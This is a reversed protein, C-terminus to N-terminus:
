LPNVWARDDLLYSIRQDYTHNARVFREGQRRITQREQANVIFHIARNTCSEIDTYWVCHEGGRLMAALGTSYQGLYFGGALMVM